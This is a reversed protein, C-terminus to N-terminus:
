PVLRHTMRGEERVDLGDATRASWVKQGCIQIGEGGSSGSHALDGSYISAQAM